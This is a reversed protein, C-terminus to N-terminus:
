DAAKRDPKRPERRPPGKPLVHGITTKASNSAPPRDGTSVQHNGGGAAPVADPRRTAWADSNISDQSTTSAVIPSRMKAIINGCRYIASHSVSRAFLRRYSFFPRRGTEAGKPGLGIPRDYRRAPLSKRRSCNKDGIVMAFM